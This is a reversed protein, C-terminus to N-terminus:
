RTDKLAGLINSPVEGESGPINQYQNLYNGQQQQQPQQLQQPTQQQQQSQQQQMSQQDVLQQLHAENAQAQSRKTTSNNLSKSSGGGM